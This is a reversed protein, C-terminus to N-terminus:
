VKFEREGNTGLSQRTDKLKVYTVGTCAHEVPCKKKLPSGHSVRYVGGGIM